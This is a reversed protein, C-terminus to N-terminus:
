NLQSLLSSISRHQLCASGDMSQSGPICALQNAIPVPFHPRLRFLLIKTFIKAPTSSLVIPRLHKPLSPLDVKPLFTLRSLLWSDPLPTTGFLISNFLDALHEALDTSCLAAIFEYSIGDSGASKGSKCTDVVDKIEQVSILAPPPLPQPSACLIRHPLDPPLVDVPTYKLCFHKRLDAIARQKGGARVIYNSHTTVVSQRRNFYAIAYFDGRSSRDLLKTLWASKAEKRMAVIEKALDRAANGRLSRRLKIKQLIYPPDKYRLSKPRASVSDSLTELQQVDLDGSQLDLQEALAQAENQLKAVDVRWRGCKNIARRQRRQQKLM